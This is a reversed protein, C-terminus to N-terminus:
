QGSSAAEADTNVEGGGRKKKKRSGGEKAEGGEDKRKKGKKRNSHSSATEGMSLMQFDDRQNLDSAKEALDPYEARLAKLWKVAM